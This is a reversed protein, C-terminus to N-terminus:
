IDTSKEHFIYKHATHTIQTIPRDTKNKIYDSLNKGMSELLFWYFSEVGAKIALASAGGFRPNCEIIHVQQQEDIIAQLVIHGFLNMTQIVKVFYDELEKNALSTTVWSEGDVVLKRERVLVDHVQNSCDVYADVSYETGDIFPQFIPEKLKVAWAKAQQKDLNIGASKSGAGFREKVVFRTANVEDVNTYTPITNKNKSSQYFRLKDLCDRVSQEASIMVFVGKKKLYDRHKAFYLLEGDRTPIIFGIERQQCYNILEEIDLSSIPPMAWFEDVFYQGICDSDADGGYVKNLCNVRIASAKVQKILSVKKAISTILVHSAKHEENQNRKTHIVVDKYEGKFFCHENLVAEKSFGSEELAKYLHPRVDFAYTYIKHLSAASFAVQELLGLFISWHKHFETKELQTQMIFSIEAHKDHWNIHVLGGYGIAKGQQLYTFLLQEPQTNPLFLNAVVTQFYADQQEPTLPESQRLHYIQENRWQMILHRDEYRIPVIAYESQSFHSQILYPYESPFKMRLLYEVSENFVM